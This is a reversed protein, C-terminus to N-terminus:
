SNDGVLDVITVLITVTMETSLKDSDTGGTYEELLRAMLSDKYEPANGRFNMPLDVEDGEVITNFGATHITLNPMLSSEAHQSSAIMLTLSAPTSPPQVIVGVALSVMIDSTAPGTSQMSLNFPALPSHPKAPLKM